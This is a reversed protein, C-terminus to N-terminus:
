VSSNGKIVLESFNTDYIPTLNKNFVNEADILITKRKM